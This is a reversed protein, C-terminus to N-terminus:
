PPEGVLASQLGAAARDGVRRFVLSLLPNGASLVGRLDLRADYTVVAGGDAPEVRIEDVSRLTATRAVLVLRRPADWEKVAYRMALRRPGARVVVDYATQPGPGDGTVVSVSEVGPDWRVFNRVDAMFGFTQAPSWDTRISTVYRPM